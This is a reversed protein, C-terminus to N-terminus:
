CLIAPHQKNDNSVEKHHTTISPNYWVCGFFCFLEPQSGSLGSAASSSQKAIYLWGSRHLLLSGAIMIM